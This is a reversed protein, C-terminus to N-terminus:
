DRVEMYKEQSTDASKEENRQKKSFCIKEPQSLATEENHLHAKEEWNGVNWCLQIEQM